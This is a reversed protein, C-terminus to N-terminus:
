SLCFQRRIRRWLIVFVSSSSEGKLRPHPMGLYLPDNLLEQNDTGVDLLVPLTRSPHIGGCATYLALKGIPIGSLFFGSVFLLCVYTTQSSILFSVVSLFIPMNAM